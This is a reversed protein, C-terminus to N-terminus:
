VAQDPFLEEFRELMSRAQDRLQEREPPSDAFRHLVSQLKDGRAPDPMHALEWYATALAMREELADPDTHVSPDDLLPQAFLALAEPQDLQDPGYGADPAAGSASPSAHQDLLTEFSPLAAGATQEAHHRRSDSLDSWRDRMLGMLKDFSRAAGSDPDPGVLCKRLADAHQAQADDGLSFYAWFLRATDLVTVLTTLEDNTRAADPKSLSARLDIGYLEFLPRAFRALTDFHIGMAGDLYADLMADPSSSASSSAM